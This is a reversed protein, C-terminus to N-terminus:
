FILQCNRALNTPSNGFFNERREGCPRQSVLLYFNYTNALLFQKKKKQKKKVRSGNSNNFSFVRTRRSNIKLEGNCRLKRDVNKNKKKQNLLM